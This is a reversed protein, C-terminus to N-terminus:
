SNDELRKLEQNLLDGCQITEGDSMRILYVEGSASSKSALGVVFEHATKVKKKHKDYKKQLHDAAEQPPFEKGNRIFIMGELHRVYNILHNIKEEETMQPKDHDAKAEAASSLNQAFLDAPLAASFFFFLLLVLVKM